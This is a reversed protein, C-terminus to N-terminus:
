DAYKVSCGYPRTVPESVDNGNMAEDLAQMLYNHAEPIDSPDSSRKDDIAGQYILIGKPNIVFFQPTNTAGYSHGVLGKEDLLLATAAMHMKQYVKKADDPKIYDEHAPNASDIVLWVVGKATMEAQWKQMTGSDYFKHVFPCNHNFWELVVYHGRASELTMVKGEASPLAFQPASEGCRVSAFASSASLFLLAAVVLPIRKM